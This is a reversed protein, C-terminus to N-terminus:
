PLFHSTLALRLHDLLFSNRIIFVFQVSLIHVYKGTRGNFPLHEWDRNSDLGLRGDLGSM